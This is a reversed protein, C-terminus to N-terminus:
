IPQVSVGFTPVRVEKLVKYDTKVLNLKKQTETFQALAKILYAQVEDYYCDASACWVRNLYREGCAFENMIDSYSQLNYVYIISKRLNIIIDLDPLLFTDVQFRVQGTLEPRENDNIIKTINKIIHELANEIQIISNIDNSSEQQTKKRNSYMMFVGLFGISMAFVYSFWSVQNLSTVSSYSGLLFGCSLLMVGIYTKM